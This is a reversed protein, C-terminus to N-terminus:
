SEGASSPLRPTSFPAAGKGFYFGQMFTLGLERMAQYEAETEVGEAIVTIGEGACYELIHKLLRARRGDRQLDCFLARDLKIFDVAITALAGLGAYSPALDDLAVRFGLEKLATVVEAVRGDTLAASRTLELVIRDVWPQLAPEPLLLAPDFLEAQALNVFLSCGAPLAALPEVARTRLQQGLEAVRGAREAAGLLDNIDVFAPDRPRGLAEYGVLRGARVDVIPQYVVDFAAESLCRELALLQASPQEPQGTTAEPPLLQPTYSVVRNRGLRKASYLATDAATVLEGRAAGDEPYAAVGISLTVKVEMEGFSQAAVAQRLREAKTAAGSKHTEPLILVFEDGGYRAALDHERLRFGDDSGRTHGKLTAAIGRLVADGVQHGLGDNIGKFHDVDFFILGFSHNHRSSRRVEAELREQFYAHNFLGTLSDRVVMEELRRNTETLRAILQANERKLLHNRTVRALRESVNELSDFPKVLYDAIGLRIAEVASDLNAFASMMVVDANPLRERIFAVLEVGSGDELNKDTVVLDPTDALWSAQAQALSGASTVAFGLEALLVEVLRRVNADDDVVLARLGKGVTEAAADLSVM